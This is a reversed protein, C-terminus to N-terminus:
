GTARAKEAQVEEIESCQNHLSTNEETLVAIQTEMTTVQDHLEKLAREQALKNEQQHGSNEKHEKMDSKAQSLEGNLVDILQNKQDVVKQAEELM